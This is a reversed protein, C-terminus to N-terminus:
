NLLYREGQKYSIIKSGRDVPLTAETEEFPNVKGMPITKAM